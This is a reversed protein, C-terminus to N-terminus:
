LRSPRRSRTFPLELVGVLLAKGRDDTILVTEAHHRLALEVSLVWSLLHHRPSLWAGRAEAEFPASWFSWVARMLSPLRRRRRLPPPLLPLHANLIIRPTGRGGSADFRTDGVATSRL